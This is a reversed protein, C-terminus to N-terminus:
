VLTNSWKVILSKLSGIENEKKVLTAKLDGIELRMQRMTQRIFELAPHNAGGYKMQEEIQFRLTVLEENVALDWWKCTNEMMRHM